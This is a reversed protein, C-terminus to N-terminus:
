VTPAKLAEHDFGTKGASSVAQPSFMFSLFTVSVQQGFIHTHTAKKKKKKKEHKNTHTQTYTRAHADAQM